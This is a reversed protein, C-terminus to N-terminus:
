RKSAAGMLLRLATEALMAAGRPLVNEDIDFLPNHHARKVADKKAGLLFMAGPAERTMYSFDEGGLSLEREILTHQGFMDVVTERILETVKPDNYTSPCGKVIELKFDGGLAKAVGLAREVEIILKERTQDDYSRLTGSLTVENPIVNEGGPLGGHVTGITVVAPRGPNIRRARIGQIANIVQALVYIPDVGQDPHAGHAGQGIITAFFNDVNATMFGSPAFILGSELDSDVHLAIVHDVGQLAGDDIMRQAGSKGEADNTEECPQFLFRIEGTPRDPMETLIKAAGLLMATHGDHGCAHMVGPSASAYSVDNAELIPLADMDARIAVIPTGEGLHAVVGTKGVGTSVELGLARLKDAVLGATRFEQFGLEPHQHIDRRVAIMEPAVAHAKELLNTM